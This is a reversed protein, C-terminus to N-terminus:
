RSIEHTGMNLLGILHTAHSNHQSVVNTAVFQYNNRWMITSLDANGALRALASRTPNKLYSRMFKEFDMGNDDSAREM